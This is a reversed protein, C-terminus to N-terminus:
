KCKVNQIMNFNSLKIYNKDTYGLYYVLVIQQRKSTLIDAFINNQYKFYRCIVNAQWRPINAFCQVHIMCIYVKKKM